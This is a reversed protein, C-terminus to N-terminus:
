FVQKCLQLSLNIQYVPNIGINKVNKENIQRQLLLFFLSM